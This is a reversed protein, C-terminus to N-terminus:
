FHQQNIDGAALDQAQLLDVVAEARVAEEVAAEEQTLDEPVELLPLLIRAEVLAKEGPVVIATKGRHGQVLIAVIALAVAPTRVKIEGAV